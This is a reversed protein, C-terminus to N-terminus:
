FMKQGFLWTDKVTQLDGGSMKAMQKEYQSCMRKAPREVDEKEEDKKTLKAREEAKAKFPTVTMVAGWRFGKIGFLSDLCLKIDKSHM